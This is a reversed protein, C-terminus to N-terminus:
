PAAKVDAVETSWFSPLASYNPPEAEDDVYVNGIGDPVADNVDTRVGKSTGVSITASFEGPPYSAMWSPFSTGQFQSQTGEFVQLIEKPGFMYGQPTITGPNFMVVSAGESVAFNYLAQYYSEEGPSTSTGDLMPSATGHWSIANALKSEM